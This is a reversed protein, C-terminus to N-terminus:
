TSLLQSSTTVLQWTRPSLTWPHKPEKSRWGAWWGRCVGTYSTSLTTVFGSSTDFYGATLRFHWTWAVCLYCQLDPSSVSCFSLLIENKYCFTANQVHFSVSIPDKRKWITVFSQKLREPTWAKAMSISLKVGYRLTNILLISMLSSSTGARTGASRWPSSARNHSM